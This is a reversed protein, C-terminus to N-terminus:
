WTKQGCWRLSAEIEYDTMYPFKSKDNPDRQELWVSLGTKKRDVKTEKPREFPIEQGNYTVTKLKPLPWGALDTMAQVTYDKDLREAACDGTFDLRELRQPDIIRHELLEQVGLVMRQWTFDPGAKEIRIDYKKAGKQILSMEPVIARGEGDLDLVQFAPRAYKSTVIEPCERKPQHQLEKARESIRPNIKVVAKEGQIEIHTEAFLPIPKGNEIASKHGVAAGSLIIRDPFTEKVRKVMDDSVDQSLVLSIDAGKMRELTEKLRRIQVENNPEVIVFNEAGSFPQLQHTLRHEVAAVSGPQTFGAMKQVNKPNNVVGWVMEFPENRKQKESIEMLAQQLKKPDISLEGQSDRSLMGSFYFPTGIGRQGFYHFLQSADSFGLFNLNNARDAPWKGWERTLTELARITDEAGNGGSLTINSCLYRGMRKATIATYLFEAREKPSYMKKEEAVGVCSISEGGFAAANITKRGSPLFLVKAQENEAQYVMKLLKERDIKEGIARELQRFKKSNERSRKEAQFHEHIVRIAEPIRKHIPVEKFENLLAVAQLMTMFGGLQYLPNDWISYPKVTVPINQDGVYKVAGHKFYNFVNHRLRRNYQKLLEDDKQCMHDLLTDAFGYFDDDMASCIRQEGVGHMGKETYLAMCQGGKFKLGVIDAARSEFYCDGDPDMANIACQSELNLAVVGDKDAKSGYYKILTEKLDEIIGQNFFLDLRWEPFAIQEEPVRATCIYGEGGQSERNRWMWEKAWNERSFFYIGAMQGGICAGVCEPSLGYETLSKADDAHSIHYLKVERKM